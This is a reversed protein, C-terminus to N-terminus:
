NRVRKLEIGNRKLELANQEFEAKWSAQDAIHKEVEARYSVRRAEHRALADGLSSWVLGFGLHRMVSLRVRERGIHRRATKLHAHEVALLKRDALLADRDRELQHRQRLLVRDRQRQERRRQAAPSDPDSSNKRWPDSTAAYGGEAELDGLRPNRLPRQRRERDWNM